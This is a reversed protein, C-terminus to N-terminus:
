LKLMKREQQTVNGGNLQIDKEFYGEEGDKMQDTTIKYFYSGSTSQYRQMTVRPTKFKVCNAVIHVITDSESSFGGPESIRSLTGSYNTKLDTTTTIKVYDYNDCYTLIDDYIQPTAAKIRQLLEENTLTIKTDGIWWSYTHDNDFPKKSLCYDFGNTTLNQLVDSESPKPLQTVDLIKEEETTNFKENDLIITGTGGETGYVGEEIWSGIIFEACEKALYTGMAWAGTSTPTLDTDGVYNVVPIMYQQYNETTINDNPYLAKLAKITLQEQAIHELVGVGTCLLLASCVEMASAFAISGGTTVEWMGTSENLTADVVQLDSVEGVELLQQGTQFNSPITKVEQINAPLMNIGHLDKVASIKEFLDYDGRAWIEALTKSPVAKMVEEALQENLRAYHNETTEKFTKDWWMEFEKEEEWTLVRDGPAVPNGTKAKWSIDGTSTDVELERTGAEFNQYVETAQEATGQHEALWSKMVSM